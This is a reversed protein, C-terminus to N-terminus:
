TEDFIKLFMCLSFSFLSLGQGAKILIYVSIMWLIFAFIFTISRDSSQAIDEGFLYAIVSKGMRGGDFGSIPILNIIGQIMSFIFVFGLATYVASLEQNLTSYLFSINIEVGTIKLLILSASAIAFSTAPGAACLFFEKKYSSIQGAPTIKAGAIDLSMEAIRIKLIRAALLHGIEHVGACFIYIGSILINNSCFISFILLLAGFNLKIKM